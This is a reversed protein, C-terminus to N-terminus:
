SAHPVVNEPLLYYYYEVFILRPCAGISEYMDATEQLPGDDGVGQWVISRPLLQDGVVVEFGSSPGRCSVASMHSLMPAQGRSIKSATVGLRAWVAAQSVTKWWVEQLLSDGHGSALAISYELQQEATKKSEVLVTQESWLYQSVQLLLRMNFFNANHM